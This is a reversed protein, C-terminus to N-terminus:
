AVLETLQEIMFDAQARRSEIQEPWIERIVGAIMVAAIGLSKAGALENSGGDGVFVCQAPTVGLRRMAIRYIEPEPKACGVHCSFVTEQFFSALPSRPWAEIETVDANSVLAIKKGRVRLRELASLTEPEPNLLARAFREVRRRAARVIVEDAIAPDVARAMKRVIDVPETWAGTLRERSHKLLQDSWAQRAIGLMDCTMPGDAWASEKPTLTHFLDFLIADKSLVAEVVESENM